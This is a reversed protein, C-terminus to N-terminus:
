RVTLSGIEIGLDLNDKKRLPLDRHGLYILSRTIIFSHNITSCGDFASVQSYIHSLMCTDFSVTTPLNSKSNHPYLTLIDWFITGFDIKLNWMSQFRWYKVKLNSSHNPAFVTIKHWFQSRLQLFVLVKYLNQFKLLTKRLILKEGIINHCQWYIQWIEFVCHGIEFCKTGFTLHFFLWKPITM